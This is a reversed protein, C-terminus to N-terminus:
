LPWRYPSDEDDLWLEQRSGRVTIGFRARRPRDLSLWQEHAAELLTWLRRPGGQEVDHRRSGALARAWSGDPHALRLGTSEQVVHVEPLALGAFFEFPSAPSLLKAPDLTSTGTEAPPEGQTRRLVLRHARLPMFRGDAALVRGQGTAGQGVTIRVMGAGIPRNLSTLVMGGPVTQDLWAPPITSVACTALVRDYPAHAAFGGAGDAVAVHPRYNADTLNQMATAILDADIDVSTVADAGLRHALLAANYGTGTGIELAHQGDAVALHKLMVAMIAPQSSSSTPVGRVPGSQRAATWRGPDGDLQTVLVRDRYVLDLWDPDTSDTAAWRGDADPQFFRPLFVHRPVATFAAQWSPDTLLGAGILERVLRRRQREAAAAQNGRTRM